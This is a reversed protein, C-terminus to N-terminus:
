RAKHYSKNKFSRYLSLYNSVMRDKTFLESYRKKAAIGMKERQKKDSLMILMADALAQIDDPPVILGTVNNIVEEPIGAVNTGIVPVGISMAEIIIYPLDEYGSSPNMLFQSRAVYDLYNCKHGLFIVNNGIAEQLVLKKIQDELPGNGILILKIKSYEPYKSILNKLALVVNRHAKRPEFRAVMSVYEANQSTFPFDSLGIKKISHEEVGHYINTIKNKEFRRNDWLALGSAKSGTVFISASKYTLLDILREVTGNVKFAMNNINMIIHKKGSFKAALCAARCSLSGPYGGNNIHVVDAKEIIFIVSLIINEYLFLLPTFIPYLLQIIKNIIKLTAKNKIKDGAWLRFTYIDFFRVSRTNGYDFEPWSQCMGDMYRKSTRYIFSYNYASTFVTSTMIEFIPKESGGFLYCDSYFVIRKKEKCNRFQM